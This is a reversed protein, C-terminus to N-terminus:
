ETVYILLDREMIIEIGMCHPGICPNPSDIGEARCGVKANMDSIIMVTDHTSVSNLLDTLKHYFADKKEEEAVETPSYCMIITM